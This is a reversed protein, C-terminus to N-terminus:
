FLSSFQMSVHSLIVNLLFTKGCGGPSDIFFLGGASDSIASFAALQQENLLAKGRLAKAAEAVPEYRERHRDALSLLVPEELAPLGPFDALCKRQEKLLGEIIRLAQQAAAAPTSGRHVFDETMAAESDTWLKGPDAPSCFLLLSVFLERLQRPMQYEAAQRLCNSWEADERLLGRQICAERFTPCEHGDVTRVAAFSYPGRVHQLLIRLYFIEGQSAHVAYVRGIPPRPGMRTRRRWCQAKRDWSFFEPVHVYLLEAVFREQPQVACLDFFAVLMSSHEVEVVEAIAAAADFRVPQQGPMHIQLRIVAPEQDGLAFSFIRWAAETASLYRGDVYNQIEDRLPRVADGAAAGPDAAAAASGGQAVGQGVRQLRIQLYVECGQHRQLGGREPPLCVQAAAGPQAAGGLPQRRGIRGNRLSVARGNNRRRYIPYGEETDVTEEQFDKPYSKSCAGTKKM